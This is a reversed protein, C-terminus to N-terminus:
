IGEEEKVPPQQYLPLMEKQYVGNVVCPLKPYALAVEM